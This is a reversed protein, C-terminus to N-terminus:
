GPGSAMLARRVSRGWLWGRVALRIPSATASLTMIRSITSMPRSSIVTMRRRWLSRPMATTYGDQIQSPLYELGTFVDSQLRTSANLVLKWDGLPVTQQIGFSAVWEPANAPRRGSCDQVYVTAPNGLVFPCNATPPASTLLGPVQPSNNPTTFVFSDYKADLYQLNMSVQTNRGPKAIAEIEFGKNTSAGVNRTAFVVNGRVTARQRVSKSTAISGISFNSM